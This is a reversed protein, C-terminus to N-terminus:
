GEYPFSGKCNCFVEQWIFYGPFNALYAADMSIIIFLVSVPVERLLLLNYNKLMPMYKENFFYQSTMKM